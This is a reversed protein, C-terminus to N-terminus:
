GCVLTERGVYPSHMENPPPPTVYAPRESRTSGFVKKEDGRVFLRRVQLNRWLSAETDEISIKM